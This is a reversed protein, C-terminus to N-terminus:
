EDKHFKRTATSLAAEIAAFIVERDLDKERSVVDAMLLIERNSM